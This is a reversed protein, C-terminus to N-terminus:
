DEDDDDYWDPEPINPNIPSPLIWDPYASKEVIIALAIETTFGAKRLSKWFEHLGISYAEIPSYGQDELQKTAKRAM